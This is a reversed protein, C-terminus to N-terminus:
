DKRSRAMKKHRWVAPCSLSRMVNRDGSYGEQHQRCRPRRVVDLAAVRQVRVGVDDLRGVEIAEGVHDLLDGRAEQTEDRQRGLSGLSPGPVRRNGPRRSQRHLSRASNGPALAARDKRRTRSPPRTVSRAGLGSRDTRGGLGSQGTWIVQSEFNIMMFERVKLM